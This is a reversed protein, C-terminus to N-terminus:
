KSIGAANQLKNGIGAKIDQEKKGTIIDVFEHRGQGKLSVSKRMKNRILIGSEVPIVKMGILSSFAVMPPMEFPDIRSMFDISSLREKNVVDKSFHELADGLETTEKFRSTGQDFKHKIKEKGGTQGDGDLDATEMEARIGSIYIVNKRAM